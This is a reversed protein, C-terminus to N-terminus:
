NSVEMRLFRIRKDFAKIKEMIYIIQAPDAVIVEVENNQYIRLEIGINKPSHHYELCFLAAYVELQRPSAAHKGMKLDHIRLMDNEFGIADATGFVNESYYLTQEPTMRFGIADNIYQNLSRRNSVQRVRLSIAMQAFLHYQTGRKAEESSFFVRDLKDEEYNVWANNSPSLFAHHGALNSHVNFNM